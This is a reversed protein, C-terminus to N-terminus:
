ETVPETETPAPESAPESVQPQEETSAEETSPTKNDAIKLTITTNKDLHPSGDASPSQEVITGDPADSTVFPEFVVNAYGADHLIKYGEDRMKGVVNTYFSISNKHNVENSFSAPSRSFNVNAEYLLQDDLYVVLRSDKSSGSVHVTYTSAAALDITDTNVTSGDLETRLTVVTSGKPLSIQKEAPIRGSSVTLIVASGKAIPVGSAPSQEIVYNQKVSSDQEETKGLTLGSETLLKVAEDLSKGTLGPMKVMNEASSDAAYYITVTEGEIAMEGSAPNTRVVSGITMQTTTDPVVIVSFGLGELTAQAQRYNQGTLDPIPTGTGSSAIKLIVTTGKKAKVGADPEQEIVFGAVQDSPVFHPEFVYKDAYEPNNKIETEYNLGVFQDVRIKKPGSFAIILVILAIVVAAGAGCIAAIAKSNLKHQKQPEVDSVVSEPEIAPVPRVPTQAPKKPEAAAAAAAATPKTRSSGVANESAQIRGIYRTPESDVHYTPYDFKIMPNSRLQELDRLMEAASQYREKPTKQMAKMTIQEFGIPISANVSRPPKAETQVQMLAVSVANEAEFPLKGTLMEYLMVGVSYLDSKEDTIEGKAQEPSMYHVSGIAKESLTKTEGHNFRAIGFDAVKITGNSLLMINQPKIDRHVIGKDHAHQLARLVQIVFYLAENWDLVGKQEIYEKLTIGEIYEMVIYQLRDGFSVDYVKVINPHSLVAIAKSENKFRRRFEENALYEDKLVKVAVTRDDISDYAKYVVAMGGVGIVEQIEYRGDLRKGVYNEM